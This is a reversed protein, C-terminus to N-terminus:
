VGHNLLGELNRHGQLCTLANNISAAQIHKIDTGTQTRKNNGTVNTAAQNRHMQRHRYRYTTRYRDMIEVMGCDLIM